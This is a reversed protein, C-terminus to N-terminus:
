GKSGRTMTTTMTTTMTAMAKEAFCHHRVVSPEHGLVLLESAMPYHHNLM